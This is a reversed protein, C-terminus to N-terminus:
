SPKQSPPRADTGARLVCDVFATAGAPGTRRTEGEKAAVAAGMERQPEAIPEADSRKRAKRRDDIEELGQDSRLLELVADLDKGDSKSGKNDSEPAGAAIAAVMTRQSQAVPEAVPRERIKRQDRIQELGRGRQLLELTGEQQWVASEPDPRILQMEVDAADTRGERVKAFFRACKELTFPHVSGIEHSSLWAVCCHQQWAPPIQERLPSDPSLRILELMSCKTWTQLNLGLKETGPPVKLKLVQCHFGPAMAHTSVSLGDSTVSSTVRFCYAASAM